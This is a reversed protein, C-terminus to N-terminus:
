RGFVSEKKLKFQTFGNHELVLKLMGIGEITRFQTYILHLGTNM